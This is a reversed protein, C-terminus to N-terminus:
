NGSLKYPDSITGSGVINVTSKLNITPRLGYSNSIIDADLTGSSYVLFVIANWYTRGFPNYGGAPTMTWYTNGITLYTNPAIKQYNYTGDFVGGAHGALIVEDVTILGIPYSLAKNGKSSGSVTYLDKENECSLDPNSTVTRLYGKNYTTVTGTGVGSQVNLTSRDGCFGADTDIYQAYSALYNEYFEDNARKITSSTGLGDAEDLTYMYGVYENRTNSTNIQSTGIQRDTSSEGNKHPTTGDYIIRISGDENIRIVRWWYGAFQLYNNEVSGRYYYSTGDQDTIQYIGKEHSECTEDDCASKTFDPTYPYVSLDGLATSVTQNKIFYLNCRTATNNSPQYNTYDGLFSWSAYNWTPVVGNTCSSTSADLTYETNQLPPNQSAVGDIYYAFYIDGPSKVNGEMLNYTEKSEFSAFSTYFFVGAILLICAITFIIIGTKKPNKEKFKSLKLNDSENNNKM